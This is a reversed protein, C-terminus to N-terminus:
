LSHKQTLATHTYRLSPAMHIALKRWGQDRNRPDHNIMKGIKNCGAALEVDTPPPPRPGEFDIVGRAPPPAVGLCLFVVVAPGRLVAPLLAPM